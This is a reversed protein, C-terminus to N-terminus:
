GGMRELATEVRYDSAENALFDAIEAMRSVIRAGPLFDQATSYTAGEQIPTLAAALKDPDLNTTAIVLGGRRYIEDTVTLLWEYRSQTMKGAGLDDLVTLDARGALELLYERKGGDMTGVYRFWSQVDIWAVAMQRRAAEAAIVRALHTKGNGQPGHILLGPPKPTPLSQIYEQVRQLLYDCGDRADFGNLSDPGNKPPFYARYKNLRHDREAEAKQRAAEAEREAQCDPCKGRIRWVQGKFTTEWPNITRNHTECVWPEPEVQVPSGDSCAVKAALAAMGMQLAGAVPKVGPREGQADLGLKRRKERLLEQAQELETM